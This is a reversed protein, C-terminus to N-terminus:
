GWQLWQDSSFSMCKLTLCTHTGVACLRTDQILTKTPSDWHKLPCLSRSSLRLVQNGNGPGWPLFSTVTVWLNDKYRWVHTWMYMHTCVCLTLLFLSTSKKRNKNRWNYFLSLNYVNQWPYKYFILLNVGAQQLVPSSMRYVKILM